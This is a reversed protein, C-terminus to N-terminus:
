GDSKTKQKTRLMILDTISEVSEKLLLNKKVFDNDALAWLNAKEAELKDFIVRQHYIEIEGSEKGHSDPEIGM